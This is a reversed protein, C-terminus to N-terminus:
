SGEFKPLTGKELVQSIKVWDEHVQKLRIERLVQRSPSFRKLEIRKM